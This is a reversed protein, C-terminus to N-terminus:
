EKGETVRLGCSGIKKVKMNLVHIQKYPCSNYSETIGKEEPSFNDSETKRKEMLLSNIFKITGLQVDFPESM